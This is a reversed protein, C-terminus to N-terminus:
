DLLKSNIKKWKDHIYSAKDIDMNSEIFDCVPKLLTKTDKFLLDSVNIKLRNEYEPIPEILGQVEVDEYFYKKYFEQKNAYTEYVNTTDFYKEALKKGPIYDPHFRKHTVEDGNWEYFCKDRRKKLWDISASDNVLTIVKGDFWNPLYPKHWQLMIYKDPDFTQDPNLEYFKQRSEQKTLDDGRTMPLQRTFYSLDYPFRPEYLIHQELPM